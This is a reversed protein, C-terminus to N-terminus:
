NQRKCASHPFYLKKLPKKKTLSTKCDGAYVQPALWFNKSFRAVSMCIFHMQNNLLQMSFILFCSNLQSLLYHLLLLVCIQTHRCPHLAKNYSKFWFWFFCSFFVFRNLRVHFKFYKYLLVWLVYNFLKLKKKWAKLTVLNLLQHGAKNSVM